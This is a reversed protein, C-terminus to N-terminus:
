MVIDVVKMRFILSLLILVLTHTTNIYLRNNASRHEQRMEQLTHHARVEYLRVQPVRLLLFQLRRLPDYGGHDARLRPISRPYRGGLVYMM